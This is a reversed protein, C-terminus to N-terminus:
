LLKNSGEDIKKMTSKLPRVMAISTLVSWGRRRRGRFRFNTTEVERSHGGYKERPQRRREMWPEMRTPMRNSLGLPVLCRYIIKITVTYAATNKGTSSIPTFCRDMIDEKCSIDENKAEESARSLYGGERADNIDESNSKLDKM